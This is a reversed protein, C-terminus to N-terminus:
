LAFLLLLTVTLTSASSLPIDICVGNCIQRITPRVHGETEVCEWQPVFPDCDASCGPCETALVTDCVQDCVVSNCTNNDFILNTCDGRCKVTDFSCTTSTACDLPCKQSPSTANCQLTYDTNNVLEYTCTMPDAKVAVLALLAYVILAKM